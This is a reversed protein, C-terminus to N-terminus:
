IPKQFDKGFVHLCYSSFFIGTSKRILFPLHGTGGKQSALQSVQQSRWWETHGEYLSSANLVSVRERKECPKKGVRSFNGVSSYALTITVKVMANM